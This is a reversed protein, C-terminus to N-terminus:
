TRRSAPGPAAVTAPPQRTGLVSCAPTKKVQCTRHFQFLSHGAWALAAVSAAAAVVAGAQVQGDGKFAGRSHWLAIGIACSVAGMVWATVGLALYAVSDWGTTGPLRTLLWAGAGLSCLGLLAFLALGFALSGRWGIAVGAAHALCVGAAVALAWPGVERLPGAYFLAGLGALALLVAVVIKGFGDSRALAVASSWELDLDPLPLSADEDDERTQPRPDRRVVRGPDRGRMPMEVGVLVVTGALKDHWGQKKPDFAIWLLGLGAPLASLVGVVARILGQGASIPEGTDADVVGLSFAIQGPTGQRFCWLGIALALPAVGVILFEGFRASAPTPQTWYTWGFAYTLLVASVAVLLVV